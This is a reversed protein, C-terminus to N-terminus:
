QEKSRKMKLHNDATSAIDGYPEIEIWYCVQGDDPYEFLEAHGCIDLEAGCEPCVGGDLMDSIEEAAWGNTIDDLLEDWGDDDPIGYGDAPFLFDDGCQPCIYHDFDNPDRYDFKREIGCQNCYFM